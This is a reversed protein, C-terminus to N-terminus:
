VVRFGLGSVMVWVGHVRFGSAEAISGSGWGSCWLTVDQVPDPKAPVHVDSPAM